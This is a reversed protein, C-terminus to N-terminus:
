GEGGERGWTGEGGPGWVWTYQDKHPQKGYVPGRPGGKARRWWWVSGRWPCPSDKETCGGSCGTGQGPPCETSPTRASPHTLLCLHTQPQGQTTHPTTTLVQPTTRLAPQHTPFLM